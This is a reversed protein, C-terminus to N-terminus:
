GPLLRAQHRAYVVSQIGDIRRTAAPDACGGELGTERGTPRVAPSTADGFTRHKLAANPGIDRVLSCTRDGRQQNCRRTAAKWSDPVPSDVSVRQQFLTRGRAPRCSSGRTRSLPRGTPRVFLRVAKGGSRRSPAAAVRTGWVVFALARRPRTPRQGPAKAGPQRSAVNRRPLPSPRHRQPPAPSHMACGDAPLRLAPGPRHGRGPRAPRACV